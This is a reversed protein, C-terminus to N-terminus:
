QPEHAGPRRSAAFAQLRADLEDSLAFWREDIEYLQEVADSGPEDLDVPTADNPFFAAADRLVEAHHELGFRDAGEIGVELASASPNTFLQVFGGNDIEAGCMILAVFARDDPELRYLAERLDEASFANAGLEQYLDNVPDNADFM